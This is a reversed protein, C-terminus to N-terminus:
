VANTESYCARSDEAYVAPYKMDVRHWIQVPASPPEPQLKFNQVGLVNYQKPYKLDNVNVGTIKVTPFFGPKTSNM